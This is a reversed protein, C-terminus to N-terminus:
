VGDGTGTDRGLRHLAVEQSCYFGMEPDAWITLDLSGCREKPFWGVRLLSRDDEGRLARSVDLDVGEGGAEHEAKRLKQVNQVTPKRSM